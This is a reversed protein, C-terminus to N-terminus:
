ALRNGIAADAPLPWFPGEPERDAGVAVNEADGRGSIVGGVVGSPPGPWATVRVLAVVACVAVPEAPRADQVHCNADQSIMLGSLGSPWM